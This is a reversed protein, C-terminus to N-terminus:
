YVTSNRPPTDSSVHLRRRRPEQQLCGQLLRPRSPPVGCGATALSPDIFSCLADPAAAAAVRVDPTAAAVIERESLVLKVILLYNM